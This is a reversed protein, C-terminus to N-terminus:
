DVFIHHHGLSSSHLITPNITNPLCHTRGNPPTSPLFPVSPIKYLFGQGILIELEVKQTDQIKPTM